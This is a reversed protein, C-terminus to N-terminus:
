PEPVPVDRSTCDVIVSAPELHEPIPLRLNFWSQPAPLAEYVWIVQNPHAISELRMQLAVGTWELHFVAQPM